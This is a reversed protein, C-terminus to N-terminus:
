RDRGVDFLTQVTIWLIICEKKRVTYIKNLEALLVNLTISYHACIDCTLNCPLLQAGSIYSTSFVADIVLDVTFNLREVTERTRLQANRLQSTLRGYMRRRLKSSLRAAKVIVTANSENEEKGDDDADVPAKETAAADNEV